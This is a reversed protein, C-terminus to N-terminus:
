KYFTLDKWPSMFKYFRYEQALEIVEQVVRKEGDDYRVEVYGSIPFDKRLPFGEFGYDTLIRRLDKHDKFFVGFMDWVERELWGASSYLHSITLVEEKEELAVKLWVRFKYKYSIFLYNIEFRKTKDPYDVGWVDVLGKCSFISNKRLFNVVFILKSNYVTCVIIRDKINIKINDFCGQLVHMLYVGIERLDM